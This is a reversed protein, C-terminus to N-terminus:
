ISTPWLLKTRNVVYTLTITVVTSYM